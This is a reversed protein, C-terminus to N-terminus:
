SHLGEVAMLLPKSEKPYPLQECKKVLDQVDPRGVGLVLRAARGKVECFRFVLPSTSPKLLTVSFRRFCAVLPHLRFSIRMAWPLIRFSPPLACVLSITLTQSQKQTSFNMAKHKSQTPVSHLSFNDHINM